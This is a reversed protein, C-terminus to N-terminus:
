TRVLQRNKIKWFVNLAGGSQNTIQLQQKAQEPVEVGDITSDFPDQPSRNTAGVASAPAIREQDIYLQRTLGVASATMLVRLISPVPLKEQPLADLLQQDVTGNAISIPGRSMVLTDPPLEMFNGAEDVYPELTLRYRFTLGGATPNSVRIALVEGEEAFAEETILDQPDEMASAVRPESSQVYSKSGHLADYRLGSSSQVCLLRIRAPWPVSLLPRLSPNLAIVNDATTGAAISQSDEIIVPQM